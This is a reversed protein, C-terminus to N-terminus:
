WWLEIWKGKKKSLSAIEKKLAKIENDQEKLKNEANIKIDVNKAKLLKENNTLEEIKSRYNKIEKDQKEIRAQTREQIVLLADYKIEVQKLENIQNEYKKILEEREEARDYEKQLYGKVDTIKVSKTLEYKDKLEEKNKRKIINFM